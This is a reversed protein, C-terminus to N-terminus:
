AAIRLTPTAELLAQTYAHQPNDLVNGTSGEEVILGQQLVIIRDAIRSVAGLDHSIFLCAFGHNEQLRRLLDLVQKQITMDLASVPEDAVVFAPNRIVARAIAVRQRQGGSLAHPYRDALAALGVKNLMEKVREAKESRGLKPGHKLPEAVIDFITQRPDLSSYPDQFILQCQLRFDRAAAKDASAMSRDRFYIDGGSLPLLGLMARGLTTKGSGSGGVLAVVESPQVGLSVGKVALKKEAASFMNGAGSFTVEVNRAEILPPRYALPQREHDRKPLAEILTRTYQEKPRRLVEEVSGREILKGRELVIVNKAYQAVLGLNHTILLVATGSTRTLDVMTEMVERQTLTDLATTPEDAILLKPRLLMVSALMIRQRMGGSFQHPYAALCAEPNPISVRALMETARELSSKVSIKEHLRLGEILQAGITLAPNLSVMPEQFVMGIEAGRLGRIETDSMKLVDRGQFIIEGSTAKIAKPLLRMSARAAVTKGSGSEGVLAVISGAEVDFSLDQLIPFGSSTTIHLGRVSLLPPSTDVTM